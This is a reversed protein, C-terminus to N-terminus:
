PNNNNSKQIAKDIRYLEWAHLKHYCWWVFNIIRQRISLKRHEVSACYDVSACHDVLEFFTLGRAVALALDKYIRNMLEQPDYIGYKTPRILTAIVVLSLPAKSGYTKVVSTVFDTLEQLEGLGSRVGLVSASVVDLSQNGSLGAKMCRDLCKEIIDINKLKGREREILLAEKLVETSIEIEFTM